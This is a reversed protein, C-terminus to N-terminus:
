RRRHPECLTSRPAPSMRQCNPVACGDPRVPLSPLDLSGAIQDLSLGERRLRTFCHWCVGGTGGHVTTECGRVRCLTRGLLPHAAPLSLVRAAPDWGAELLFGAELMGALRAAPGTLEVGALVHDFRAPGTLASVARAPVAAALGAGTV